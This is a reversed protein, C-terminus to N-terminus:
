PSPPAWEILAAMGVGALILLIIVATAFILGVMPRTEFYANQGSEAFLAAVAEGYIIKM